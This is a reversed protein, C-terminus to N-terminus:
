YKFLNTGEFHNYIFTTDNPKGGEIKKLNIIFKVKYNNFEDNKENNNNITEGCKDIVKPLIEAIDLVIGLIISEWPNYEIACNYLSQKLLKRIHGLSVSDLPLDNSDQPIILVSKKDNLKDNNSIENPLAPLPKHSHNTTFPTQLNMSM